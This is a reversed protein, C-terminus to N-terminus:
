CKRVDMSLRLYEHITCVYMLSESSLANRPSRIHVMRSWSIYLEGSTRDRHTTDRDLQIEM